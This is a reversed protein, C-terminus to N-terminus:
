VHARGIQPEPDPLLPKTVPRKIGLKIVDVM